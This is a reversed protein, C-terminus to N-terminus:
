KKLFKGKLIADDAHVELIYIGQQLGSVDVSPEFRGQLVLRSSSDYIRYSQVNEYDLYITNDVPNPYFRLVSEKVNGAIGTPNSYQKNSVKIVRDDNAVPFGGNGRGDQNSTAFFIEGNPSVCVDRLRGYENDFFIEESVITDGTENLKLVRLDDAKLSALLLSHKWEPIADHGYYDLGCTAITPTWAMLPEIANNAACYTQEAPLDCFGEVEPWGYNGLERIINIEDDNSPGHESSYIIGNPARVLGQPNRHGLSWVYSGAIPNDDPVSGDLNIRLVKGHFKATDLAYSASGVDGTTMLITRDPLILVRSGIHYYGSPIKDLLITEDVLADTEYTYRVLRETPATGYYTYVIYVFQSDPHMFNPHLVMGLMGNENGEDVIDSIDLLVKVNGSATDIRSVVGRRETMWIHDDPGWLIEWPTDLNEAIVQVDLETSDLKLSQANTPLLFYVSLALFLISFRM